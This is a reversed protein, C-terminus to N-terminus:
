WGDEVGVTPTGPLIVAPAATDSGSRPPWWCGLRPTAAIPVRDEVFRFHTVQLDNFRLIRILDGVIALPAAQFM